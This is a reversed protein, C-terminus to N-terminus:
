RRARAGQRPPPALRPPPDGWTLAVDAHRAAVRLAADSAGGFYIEPPEAMGLALAGETWLHEGHFDFRRVAGRAASSRSSSTPGPTASTRPEPRRRLAAAGRRRRGTVINLALRGGTHRQFTAAQQAALTPSISGPGSRWWSACGTWWRASRPAPSGRTTAPRAPRPSPPMSARRRPRARWRPWTPSRPRGAPGPATPAAPRRRPVARRRRGAGAHARRRPHAPVLAPRHEHPIEPRPFPERSFM